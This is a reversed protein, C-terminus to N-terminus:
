GLYTEKYELDGIVKNLETILVQKNIIVDHINKELEKKLSKINRRTKADFFISYHELIAIQRNVEGILKEDLVDDKTISDLIGVFNKKSQKKVREYNDHKLLNRINSKIQGTRYYTFFSFILGIISILGGYFNLWNNFDDWLEKM